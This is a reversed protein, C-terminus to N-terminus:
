ESKKLYEITYLNTPSNLKEIERDSEGSIELASQGIEYILGVCLAATFLAMIVFGYADNTFQSVTYPAILTLELDFLLYLMAYMYFLVHFPQRNQDRFSHFGCEFISDKEQYSNHSAFLFNIALFALAIISVFLYLFIM